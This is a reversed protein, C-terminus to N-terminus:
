CWGGVEVRLLGSSKLADEIALRQVDIRAQGDNRRWNRAVRSQVENWLEERYDEVDARQKWKAEASEWGLARRPALNLETKMKACEDHLDEGRLTSTLWAHHQQNQHETQGYFRPLRPPGHLVLVKANTLLEVVEDVRHASARDMRYVLPAGHERMDQELVQAVADGTYREVVEVTTRYPVAADSCILLLEDVNPLYKQDMGRIVGPQEVSVKMAAGKREQELATLVESKVTQCIRRSTGPLEKSLAAAGLVGRTDRVRQAIVAQLEPSLERPGPGRRNVLREGRANRNRYRGYTSVSMLAAAAAHRVQLGQGRLYETTQLKARAEGDPEEREPTGMAKEKTTKTRSSRNREKVFATAVELIREASEARQNAKRLERELEANKAELEQERPPKPKRGKPQPMLTEVAAAMAKHMKTQFHNRSLGLRKAGETVTIMGVYAELIAEWTTQLERDVEPAPTYTKKKQEEDM